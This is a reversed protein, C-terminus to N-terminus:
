LFVAIQWIALQIAELNPVLKCFLCRMESLEPHQINSYFKGTIYDDRVRRSAYLFFPRQEPKQCRGKSTKRSSSTTASATKKNWSFM